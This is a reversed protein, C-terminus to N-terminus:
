KKILRKVTTADASKITVMYVGTSIGSIDIRQEVGMQSLDVRTIVKGTIDYIIAETLAIQTNNNRLYVFENAPNPYMVVSSALLNDESSLFEEVVLDFSCSSENGYEDEATVNITYTGPGVVTGPAPSQEFIVVPDTCNDTISITGDGIWDPIMYDNNEDADVTVTAAPCGIVPALLDVVTVTASSVTTNNSSDAVFISVTIPAGIDACTFTTINVGGTVIGCNDYALVGGPITIFSTSGNSNTLVETWNEPAFQGNFGPEFESILVQGAGGFNDDSLVRFGFVDGASLTVSDSGSQNGVANSTLQTYTGNLLYGFSDFGPIDTTTYDWDFSVTVGETVPVTLNTSGAGTLGNSGIALVEYDDPSFAYFDEYSVTATGNPGLEVVIDQTVLVPPMNDIIEIMSTCSSSNGAADTATVTVNTFGLNACTFVTGSGGGSGTCTGNFSYIGDRAANPITWATDFQAIPNGSMSQETQSMFITNFAAGNETGIELGIWYTTDSGAGGEFTFPTVDIVVEHINGIPNLPWPGLNVSSTVPLTESGILTGPLGGNNEYYYVSATTSNPHPALTLLELEIQSLIFDTGAEVVLDNAVIFQNHISFGLGGISSGDNSQQCATVGAGGVTVSIGCAGANDSVSEYLDTIPINVQGNADLFYQPVGSPNPDLINATFDVMTGWSYTACPLLPTVGTEQTMVRITVPGQYANAPVTFTDSFANGGTPATGTPGGGSVFAQSGTLVVEDATLVGDGNFDIWIYTQATFQSLGCTWSNANVTYTQGPLLDVSLATQNQLGIVGATGSCPNVFDIGTGGEGTLSFSVLNTDFTSTPGPSGTCTVPTFDPVGGGLCVIVPAINDEVTVIVDCSVANGAADIVYMTIMNEGINSCDFTMSTMTGEPNFAFSVPGCADSSGAGDLIINATFDILSGWSYTACPTLFDPNTTERTMVRIIASGTAASAPVTFTNSFSTGGTPNAGTPGGGTVSAQSGNLVVEDATLEGDGNFDIWVRTQAAFQTGGCTWSTAEVTYTEGAILDVSLATQNQLGTVGATGTCANDFDISSFNAGTISFNVLNTDFTSTPGPNGTCTIPTAPEPVGAGFDLLAADITVLGDEGLEVTLNQCAAIPDIDDIVTVTFQCTSTNGDSDTASFEITTVGVPFISGTSPGATQTVPIIGDEADFAQANNFFVQAGCPDGPFSSSNVTIDLPCVIQPFTGVTSPNQIFNLCYSNLTGGDGNVADFIRVEWNGNVPEGAFVTNLDIGPGAGFPIPFTTSGGEARYNALPPGGTWSTIMNPSDDRFVLDAAVDLGTSGGRGRVLRAETGSPSVLVMQLDSAWTHQINLVVEDFVYESPGEGIVGSVPVTLGSVSVGDAPGPGLPVPVDTSCGAFDGTPPPPIPGVYVGRGTYCGGDGSCTPGPSYHVRYAGTTSITVDLPSNGFSIVNNSADTVTVYRHGPAPDSNRTVIFQYIGPENVTATSYETIFACTTFTVPTTSASSLTGSGFSTTNICQANAQWSFAAMLLTTLLLTIKKM